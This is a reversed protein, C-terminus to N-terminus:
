RRASGSLDHRHNINIPSAFRNSHHKCRVHHMKRSDELLTRISLISRVTGKAPLSAGRFLSASQPVWDSTMKRADSSDAWSVFESVTDGDQEDDNLVWRDKGATVANFFLRSRWRNPEWGDILFVCPPSQKWLAHRQKSSDITSEILVKLAKWWGFSEIAHYRKTLLTEYTLSSLRGYKLHAVTTMFFLKWSPFAESLMISCNAMFACQDKTM